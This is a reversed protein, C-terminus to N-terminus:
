ASGSSCRTSAGLRSPEGAAALVRLHNRGSRGPISAPTRSCRASRRARTSSSRTAVGASADGRGADPRILGLLARLTTSKGAGNPGLFGTVRGAEVEFSLDSVAHVKGFTKTLGEIQVAASM